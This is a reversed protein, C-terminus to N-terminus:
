WINRSNWNVITGGSGRGGMGGKGASCWQM